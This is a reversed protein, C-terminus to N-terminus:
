TIPDLFENYEKFKFMYLFAGLPKATAAPAGARVGRRTAQVLGAHPALKGRRHVSSLTEESALPMRFLQYAGPEQSLRKGHVTGQKAAPRFVASKGM